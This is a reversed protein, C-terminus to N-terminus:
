FTIFFQSLNWKFLFVSSPKQGFGIQLMLYSYQGIKYKVIKRLIVQLLQMVAGRNSEEGIKNVFKHLQM